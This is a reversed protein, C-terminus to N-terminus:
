SCFPMNQFCYEHSVTSEYSFPLKTVFCFHKALLFLSSKGNYFNQLFAAM